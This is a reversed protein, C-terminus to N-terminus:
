KTIDNFIAQLGIEAVKAAVRVNLSNGLLKWQQKMTCSSPFSFQRADYDTAFHKAAPALVPFGMIRAIETGSFYRLHGWNINDSWNEDYNREGPTELLFTEMSPISTDAGEEDADSLRLPGTYLISGTGRIYKGYSHTFCSSFTHHPTVIDFCWASSSNKLKPPVQLSKEKANLGKNDSKIQTTLDADLFQQIEPMSATETSEMSNLMAFIKESHIHPEENLNERTFINGSTIRDVLINSDLNKFRHNLMRHSLNERRFAICYYRPRSNPLGVHAADLHFHAVEYQRLSLVQRWRAFSGIPSLESGLPENLDMSSNGWTSEFGIVNELLLLCPLTDEEMDKLLDCLHLFSKSRPDDMEKYQNSHQRTHPQCPPSMCWITASHAELEKRTIKEISTQRPKLTKTTSKSKGQVIHNHMFVSNCLDSHDYSALLTTTLNFKEDDGDALKSKKQQPAVQDMLSIASARQISRCAQELAYGWGGIGSYFELYTLNIM